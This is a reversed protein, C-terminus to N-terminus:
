RSFRESAIRARELADCRHSAASFGTVKGANTQSRRCVARRRKLRVVLSLCIFAFFLLLLLTCLRLIAANSAFMVRWSIAANFAVVSSSRSAIIARTSAVRRFNCANLRVCQLLAGSLGAALGAKQQSSTIVLQAVGSVPPPVLHAPAASFSYDARELIREPRAPAFIECRQQPLIEQSLLASRASVLRGKEWSGSPSVPTVASDREHETQARTAAM